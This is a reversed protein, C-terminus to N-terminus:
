KKLDCGTEVLFQELVSIRNMLHSILKTINDAYERIHDDGLVNNVLYNYVRQIVNDPLSILHSYLVMYDKLDIGEPIRLEKRWNYKKTSWECDGDIVDHNFMILICLCRCLNYEKRKM